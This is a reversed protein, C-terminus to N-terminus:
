LLVAVKFSRLCEPLTYIQTSPRRFLAVFPLARPCWIQDMIPGLAVAIYLSSYYCHYLLGPRGTIPGPYTSPSPPSYVSVSFSSSFLVPLRVREHLLLEPLWASNMSLIDPKRSSDGADNGKSGATSYQRNRSRYVEMGVFNGTLFSM